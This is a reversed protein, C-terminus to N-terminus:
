KLKHIIADEVAPPVFPSIDAGLRAIEKVLSSSLHLHELSAVFFVTQIDPALRSNMSSMQFEYEFDSTQRLGRILVTAGISKAYDVLLGSFYAVEVKDMGVVVQRMLEVREELTFTCNKASPEAVAVIVKTFV